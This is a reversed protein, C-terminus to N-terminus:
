PRTLPVPQEHPVRRAGWADDRAVFVARPRADKHKVAHGFAQADEFGVETPIGRQGWSARPAM